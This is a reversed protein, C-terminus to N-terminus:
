LVHGNDLTHLLVQVYFEDDTDLAPRAAPDGLLFLGNLQEAAEPGDVGRLKLLWVERGKVVTPRGAELWVQPCRKRREPTACHSCASMNPAALEYVYNCAAAPCALACLEAATDLDEHVRGFISRSSCVLSGTAVADCPQMTWLM